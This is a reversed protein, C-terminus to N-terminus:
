FMPKRCIRCISPSGVTNTMYGQDHKCDKYVEQFVEDKEQQTLEPEVKKNVKKSKPKKNNLKYLAMAFNKKKKM